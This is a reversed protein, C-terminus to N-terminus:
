LVNEGISKLDGVKGVRTLWKVEDFDRDFSVIYGIRMEKAMLAILADHFNLRGDSSAMLDLVDDYCDVVKPYIWSLKDKPVVRKFKKLIEEFKTLEGREECRRALVSIVENAVCDFTIVGFRRERMCRHLSSAKKHWKDNEDIFGVLFSADYIVNSSM